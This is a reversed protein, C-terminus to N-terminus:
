GTSEICVKKFEFIEYEPLVQDVDYKKEIKMMCGHPHMLYIQFFEDM